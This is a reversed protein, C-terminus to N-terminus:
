FDFIYLGGFGGLDNVVVFPKFCQLVSCYLCEKKHAGRQSPIVEWGFYNM